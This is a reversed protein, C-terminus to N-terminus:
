KPIFTTTVIKIYVIITIFNNHMGVPFYKNMKNCDITKNLHNKVGVVEIFQKLCRTGDTVRLNDWGHRWIIDLLYFLKGKKDICSYM